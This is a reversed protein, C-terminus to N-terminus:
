GGEGVRGKGRGGPSGVDEAIDEKQSESVCLVDGGERGGGGPAVLWVSVGAPGSTPAAKQVPPLYSRKLGGLGM